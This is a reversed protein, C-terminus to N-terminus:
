TRRLDPGLDIFEEEFRRIVYQVAACLNGLREGPPIDKYTALDEFFLEFKASTEIGIKRPPNGTASEVKFRSLHYENGLFNCPLGEKGVANFGEPPDFIIDAYLETPFSAIIRLRRHRDFRALNHVDELAGALGRDPHGVPKKASDPQISELWTKLKDPFPFKVFGRKDFERIKGNLVPFELRNADTPPEAGQTFTIADWILGDLAARLQYAYEGLILPLPTKGIAERTADDATLSAVYWGSDEDYRVVSGFRIQGIRNWEAQFAALHSTAREIRSWSNRFRGGSTYAM